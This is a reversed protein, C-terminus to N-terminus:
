KDGGGRELERRRERALMARFEMELRQVRVLLGAIWQAQKEERSVPELFRMELAETVDAILQAARKRSAESM